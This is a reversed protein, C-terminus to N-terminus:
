RADTVINSSTKCSVLVQKGDGTFAAFGPGSCNAMPTTTKGQVKGDGAIRTVTYDNSATGTTLAYVGGMGDPILEVGVPGDGVQATDKISPKSGPGPWELTTISDSNYNTVVCVGIICRIRRPGNGVKGVLTDNSHDAFDEPDVDYPDFLWLEGAKSEGHDILALAPTDFGGAMSVINGRSTAPADVWGGQRRRQHIPPGSWAKNATDYENWTVANASFSVVAYALQHGDADVPGAIMDTVNEGFNTVLGIGWENSSSNYTHRIAGNGTSSYMALWPLDPTTILVGGAYPIGLVISLRSIETGTKLDYAAIGQEGALVAVNQEQSLSLGPDSLTNAPPNPFPRGSYMGLEIFAQGLMHLFSEPGHISVFEAIFFDLPSSPLCTVQIADRALTTVPDPTTDTFAIDISTAGVDICSFSFRQTNTSGEMLLGVSLTNGDINADLSGDGDQFPLLVPPGIIGADRPIMLAEVSRTGGGSKVAQTATVVFSQGIVGEAIRPAMTFVLESSQLVPEIIDDVLEFPMDPPDITVGGGEIAPEYDIDWSITENGESVTDDLVRYKATLRIEGGFEFHFNPTGGVWEWDTGETATGSYDLTVTLGESFSGGLPGSLEMVLEYEGFEGDSTISGFNVGVQVPEPICTVKKMFAYSSALGKSPISIPNPAGALEWEGDDGELHRWSVLSSYLGEGTVICGYSDIDVFPSFNKLIFDNNTTQLLPPASFDLNDPILYAFSTLLKTGASISVTADFTGGVELEDPVGEIMVTLANFVHFEMTSFHSIEGTVVAAGTELDYTVKLNDLESVTGDGAVNIVAVSNAAIGGSDDVVVAKDLTVSFTAPFVGFDIGDPGLEYVVAPTSFGAFLDNGIPQIVRSISITTPDEIAGAPINLSAKTDLTSVTGGTSGITASGNGAPNAIAAATGGNGGSDSCASLMLFVCLALNTALYRTM